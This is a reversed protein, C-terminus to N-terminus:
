AAVLVRGIAHRSQVYGCQQVAYAWLAPDPSYQAKDRTESEKLVIEVARVFSEMPIEMQAPLSAKHHAAEFEHWLVQADNVLRYGGDFAEPIYFRTFTWASGDPYSTEDFGLLCTAVDDANRIGYFPLAEVMLRAVIQTKGAVQLSTKTALLEEQGVLFTFLKIQQRDLADHVDRLWEYENVNYRQAEDCFMLITGSGARAAAERLKHTLRLRKATNSGTQPEPYGVAELLNAFFPGEAHNPKHECQAHFTSIRPFNRALLLRVYEIARTKGIRSPGYVLAGPIRYRLCRTVLDYFDQIAPTAIRYNGTALPHTAPDVPRPMSLSM